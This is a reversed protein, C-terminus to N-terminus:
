VFDTPRTGSFLFRILVCFNSFEGTAYTFYYAKWFLHIFSLWPLNWRRASLSTTPLKPRLFLFGRPSLTLETRCRFCSIHWSYRNWVAHSVVTYKAIEYSEFFNYRSYKLSSQSYCIHWILSSTDQHLYWYHGYGLVLSALIVFKIFHFITWFVFSYFSLFPSKRVSIPDLSSVSSSSIFFSSRICFSVVHLLIFFLIVSM